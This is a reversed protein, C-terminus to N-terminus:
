FGGKLEFGGGEMVAADPQGLTGSLEFEGGLSRMVRGGDITSRTFEYMPEGGALLLGTSALIGLITQSSVTARNM